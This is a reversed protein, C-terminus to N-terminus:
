PKPTAWNFWEHVDDRATLKRAPSKRKAPPPAAAAPVKGISGTEIAAAKLEAISARLRETETTLAKRADEARLRAFAESTAQTTSSRMLREADEARALALNRDTSAHRLKREAQAKEDRCADREKETVDLGDNLSTLTVNAYVVFASFGAFLAVVAAM